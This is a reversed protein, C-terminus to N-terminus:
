VSEKLEKYKNIYWNAKDLDEQGNKANSRYRYKWANCVCFHMVAEKGFILTMEDICEMSGNNYHSPHNVVDNLEIMRLADDLESEDMNYVDKGAIQCWANPKNFVCKECYTADDFQEECFADLREQKEEITM